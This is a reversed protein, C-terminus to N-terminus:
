AREGKPSLKPTLTCPVAPIAGDASVRADVTLSGQSVITAKSPVTLITRTPTGAGTKDPVPNAPATASPDQRAAFKAVTLLAAFTGVILATQKWWGYIRDADGMLGIGIFCFVFHTCFVQLSSQGMMVLPRIAIHKVIPRFRVLVMALASFDLIRVLGLHWKDLFVAYPMLDLGFIQKYRLVIFAVVVVIGPIWTARAWRSIPLEDKAWRVGVWMGVIWMLQWAWLNFAGMENLPIRVHLYRAMLWYCNERLGCQAGLWFVFSLALIHKWEIRTAAIMVLPSLLLFIIYLPVIDLLPPRYALLLADRTARAPGAAFYFDMLNYLGQGHSTFAYRTAIGFAWFLLLVHYGYLKLTRGLLKLTMKQVGDRTLLRYYIRGTFLASLFIFGESASIYGFPQNVWPTLATPLHTLTMWALMLGRAADIDLERKVNSV